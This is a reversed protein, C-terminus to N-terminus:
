YHTRWQFNIEAGACLETWHLPLAAQCEEDSKYDRYKSSASLKSLQIFIETKLYHVFGTMLVETCSLGLNKAITDVYCHVISNSEGMFVTGDKLIALRYIQWDDKLQKGTIPHWGRENSFKSPRIDKFPTDLYIPYTNPFWSTPAYELTKPEPITM